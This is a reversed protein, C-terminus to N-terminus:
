TKRNAIDPMGKSEWIMGCCLNKMGEPFIVEYGAKNCLKIMVDVLPAIKKGPERSVGM